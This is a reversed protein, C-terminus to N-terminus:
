HEKTGQIAWSTAELNKNKATRHGVLGCINEMGLNHIPTNNLAHDTLNEVPFLNLIHNTM